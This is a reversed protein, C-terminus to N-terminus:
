LRDEILRYVVEPPIHPTRIYTTQYNLGEYIDFSGMCAKRSDVDDSGILNYTNPTPEFFWSPFMEPWLIVNRLNAFLTAVGSAGTACGVHIDTKRFLAMLLMAYPISLSEPEVPSFLEGFGFVNYAHNVISDKGCVHRHEMSVFVIKKNKHRCLSIFRRAEDGEKPYAPTRFTHGWNKSCSTAGYRTIVVLKTDDNYPTLTRLRREILEDVLPNPSINIANPLPRKLSEREEPTLLDQFSQILERPKSHFPPKFINGRHELMDEVCVHTCNIRELNKQMAATIKLKDSNLLQFHQNSYDAGDNTNISNIGVYLPQLLECRDQIGIYDDGFRTIYLKNNNKALFHVVNNFMVFDGIGHAFYIVINANKLTCIDRITCRKPAAQTLWRVVPNGDM